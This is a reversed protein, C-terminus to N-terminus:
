LRADKKLMVGVGHNQLYTIKALTHGCFAQAQKM